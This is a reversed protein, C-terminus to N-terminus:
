SSAPSAKRTIENKRHRRFMGTQNMTMGMIKMNITGAQAINDSKGFHSSASFGFQTTITTPIEVSIRSAQINISAMIM